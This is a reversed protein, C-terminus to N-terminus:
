EPKVELPERWVDCGLPDLARADRTLAAEVEKVTFPRDCFLGVVQLSGPALRHRVSETLEVPAESVQIPVAAPVTAPDTWAPWYWFVRGAADSAFVMLYRRGSAAPNRYAFALADGAGIAGGVPVPGGGAAPLRFVQLSVARAAGAGSPESGTGGRVQFEPLQRDPLLVLVALGAVALALGGSALAWTSMPPSPPFVSRALRDRALREGGLRDPQAEELSEILSQVRYRERCRECRPLHRWLRREGFASTTGSFHRDVLAHPAILDAITRSIATTTPSPSSTTAM